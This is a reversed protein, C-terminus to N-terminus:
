QAEKGNLVEGTLVEMSRSLMEHLYDPLTSQMSFTWSEVASLMMLMELKQERTMIEGLTEGSGSNNDPQHYHQNHYNRDAM